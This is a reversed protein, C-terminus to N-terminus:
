QSPDQLSVDAMMNVSIMNLCSFVCPCLVCVIQIYIYLISRFILASLVDKDKFIESIWKKKKETEKKKM